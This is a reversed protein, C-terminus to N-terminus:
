GGSSGNGPQTALWRYFELDSLADPDAAEVSPAQLLDSTATQAISAHADRVTSAAGSAVVGGSTSPTVTAMQTHPLFTALAIAATAVAGAPWLWRMGAPRARPQLAHLRVDRLRRLTDADLSDVSSNFAARSRLALEIDNANM